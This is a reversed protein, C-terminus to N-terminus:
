GLADAMTGGLMRLISSGRWHCGWCVPSAIGGGLTSITWCAATLGVAVVPGVGSNTILCSRERAYGQQVTLMCTDYLPDTTVPNGNADVCLTSPLTRGYFYDQQEELEAMANGDLREAILLFHFQEGDAAMSILIGDIPIVAQPGSLYAAVWSWEFQMAALQDRTQEDISEDHELDPTAALIVDLGFTEGSSTTGSTSTYDAHAWGGLALYTDYKTWPQNFSDAFIEQQNHVLQWFPTLEPDVPNAGALVMDAMIPVDPATFVQSSAWSGPLVFTFIAAAQILRKWAGM